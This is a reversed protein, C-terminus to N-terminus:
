SKGRNQRALASISLPRQESADSIMVCHWGHTAEYRDGDKEGRWDDAEQGDAGHHIGFRFIRGSWGGGTVIRLGRGVFGFGFGWVRYGSLRPWRAEAHIDGGHDIPAAFPREDIDEFRRSWPRFEPRLWELVVRVAIRQE